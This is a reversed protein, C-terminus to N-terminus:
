NNEHRWKIGNIFKIHTLRDKGFDYRKTLAWTVKVIASFWQMKIVKSKTYLKHESSCACISWVGFKTYRQTHIHTNKKPWNPACLPFNGNNMRYSGFDTCQALPKAESWCNESLVFCFLHFFVRSFTISLM